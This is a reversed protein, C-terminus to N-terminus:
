WSGDFRTRKRSHLSVRLLAGRRYECEWRARSRAGLRRGSRGGPSMVWQSHGLRHRLLLDIWAKVMM